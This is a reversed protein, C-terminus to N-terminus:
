GPILLTLDVINCSIDWMFSAFVISLISSFLLAIVSPDLIDMVPDALVINISGSEGSFDHGGNLTDGRPIHETYSLRAASLAM